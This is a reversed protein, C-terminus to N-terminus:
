DGDAAAKERALAAKLDRLAQGRVRTSDANRGASLAASLPNRLRALGKLVPFVPTDTAKSHDQNNAM